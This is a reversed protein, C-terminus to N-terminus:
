QVGAQYAALREAVVGADRPRHERPVALCERCLQLLEADGGCAGLRIQAEDLNGPQAQPLVVTAPCPTDPQRGILLVCLIAGLSFVDAREDVQELLGASQEPAMYGPTGMARGARSLESVDDPEKAWAVTDGGGETKGGVSTTEVPSGPDLAEVPPSSGADTGPARRRESLVKALGWDMVQVEGFSGVMINSPKLDRHLVGKSHAYAVAQCVKEFIALLEPLRDTGEALIRQLTRGRVLKMTFYLRGDPLRGLNHVPVIGPHQLTGTVRAERLFRCEAAPHDRLAPRIVKVALYRGLAPDRGRYVEGMGGAGLQEHLQYNRLDLGAPSGAPLGQGPRPFVEAHAFVSDCQPCHLTEGAEDEQGIAQQRCTPCNWRPRLEALAAAHQPFASRYAARLPRQGCKWRQQYEWRILNLQREDGLRVHLFYREVLLAPLGAQVRCEIDLQILSFVQEPQREPALFDQWRPPPQGPQWARWASQLAEVPIADATLSFDTSPLSPESM